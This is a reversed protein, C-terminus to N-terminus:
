KIVAKILRISELIRRKAPCVYNCLGCEICDRFNYECAHVFQKYEACLSLKYPLMRVPCNTVCRGCRICPQENYDVAEKESLLLIGSTGKIVPVDLTFQALGMMPGGMIVKKVPETTGCYAILDSFRTGLRVKLNAPKRVVSGTVTVVREYLPKGTYVAEYVAFATGVNSVIVGVDFPLKGAPVERNVIAKILQKEAGQPYKTKLAVVEINYKNEAIESKLKCIAGPKDDEIGIFVSSVNIIKQILAIGKFIELTKEIMLRYDCTLYPECEVGNIILTDVQKPPNLKVQTPFAAGGLGVIGANKVIFLLEEKKLSNVASKQKKISEDYKEKGDSDIIVAPCRGLVPHNYEAISNVVGSVSSHISSSILNASDGIKTGICVTDGQLVLPECISGTHQGLPIVVQSPVPMQEIAADQTRSKFGEIHKGGQFTKIM